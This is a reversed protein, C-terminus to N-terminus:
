FPNFCITGGGGGWPDCQRIGMTSPIITVDGECNCHNYFLPSEFAYFACVFPIFQIIDGSTVCLEQFIVRKGNFENAVDLQLIVWDLHLDLTCKNDHIVIECGGKTAIGFQHSSFHTAFTEYIQLCLACSTFRYLTEGMAIPHVGGLPKTRALLRATGFVHAIQPSIHGQAIHFCLQFLQSFGSTSDELHFYNRFHEFIMGFFGSALLHVM